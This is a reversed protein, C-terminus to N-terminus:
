QKGFDIVPSELFPGRFWEKEDKKYMVSKDGLSIKCVVRTTGSPIKKLHITIPRKESELFLLDNVFISIM